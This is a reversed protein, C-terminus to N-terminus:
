TALLEEKRKKILARAERNYSSIDDKTEDIGLITNRFRQFQKGQLPKTHYDGVMDGTPCYEISIENNKVRDTILFYRIHIHRTRKTSSRKGNKELKM